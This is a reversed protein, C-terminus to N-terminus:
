PVESTVGNAVPTLAPLESPREPAAAPDSPADSEAALTAETTAHPPATAPDPAPTAPVEPAPPLLLALHGTALLLRGAETLRNQALRQALTAVDETLAAYAGLLQQLVKGQPEFMPDTTMRTFSNRELVTLQQNLTEVSAWVRQAMLRALPLAVYGEALGRDTLIAASVTTAARPRAPRPPRRSGARSTTVPTPTLVPTPLTIDDM